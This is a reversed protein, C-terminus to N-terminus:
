VEVLQWTDPLGPFTSISIGLEDYNVPVL